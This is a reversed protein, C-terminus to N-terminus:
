YDIEKIFIGRKDDRKENGISNRQDHFGCSPCIKYIFNGYYYDFAKMYFKNSCETCKLTLTSGYNCM